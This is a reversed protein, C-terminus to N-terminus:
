FILKLAFQMVRADGSLNTIQGFQSSTVDNNPVGFHTNNFANLMDWRLELRRGEGFYNFSRTLNMDLQAAGPARMTNRGCNGLRSPNIPAAFDATNFWHDVTQQGSPLSGTGICNGYEQVLGGLNGLSGNNSNAYITYPRGTRASTMGTVRWDRLIQRVVDAGSGKTASALAPIEPVEYVWSFALFHRFDFDSNGRNTRKIDYADPVISASQGGFLNDRVMDISHSYTYATHLMLGRGFPKNLSAEFGHYSSNGM